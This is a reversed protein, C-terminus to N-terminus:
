RKRIRETENGKAKMIREKWIREVDKGYGKWISEMDKGYGKYIREKNKWNDNGEGAIHLLVIWAM